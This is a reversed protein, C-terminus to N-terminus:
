SMDELCSDFIEACQITASHPMIESELKGGRICRIVEEIEYTFGNDLPEDFIEAVGSESYLTAKGGTHPDEIFIRGDTGYINLETPVSATIVCNLSAVCNDFELVISDVKDVGTYASTVISTVQKLNESILYTIIEIAYVGIDFIAGGALEKNYMRNLPNNQSKFGITYTALEVTGLKGSDIWEKAKNVVPLFRSWMAEMSFLQKEKAASFATEAEDKTRVFCKECLFPKGHKVCLMANDFHFNHTTAIYVADIDSRELMADYSDYYSAISEKEAFAKAKDPTKSAIAVVEAGEIKTVADCFKHSIHGAGIIGFKFKNM